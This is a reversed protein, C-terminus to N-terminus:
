FIIENMQSIICDIFGIFFKNKIGALVVHINAM